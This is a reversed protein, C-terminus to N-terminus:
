VPYSNETCTFAIAPPLRNAGSRSNSTATPIPGNDCSGSTSAVNSDSISGDSISFTHEHIKHTDYTYIWIVSFGCNGNGVTAEKNWTTHLLSRFQVGSLKCCPKSHIWANLM